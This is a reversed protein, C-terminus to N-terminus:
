KFPIKCMLGDKVFEIFNRFNISAPYRPGPFIVHLHESPHYVVAFEKNEEDKNFRFNYSFRKHEKQKDEIWVVLNPNEYNFRYKQIIIDNGKIEIIEEFEIFGRNGKLQMKKTELRYKLQNPASNVNPFTIQNLPNDVFLDTNNILLNRLETIHNKLTANM